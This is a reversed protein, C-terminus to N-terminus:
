QLNVPHYRKEWYAQSYTTDIKFTSQVWLRVLFSKVKAANTTVAGTSDYYTLKFDVVGLSGGTTPNNNVQRYLIRDGPNQTQPVQSASSVTYKVTDVTGNRDFDSLFTIANSDARLIAPRPARYGAKLFDYDFVEVISLASSQAITSLNQEVMTSTTNFTLGLVALILIGAAVTSGVLDVITSM